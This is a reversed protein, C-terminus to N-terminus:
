RSTKAANQRFTKRAVWAKAPAEVASLAVIFRTLKVAPVVPGREFGLEAAAYTAATFALM